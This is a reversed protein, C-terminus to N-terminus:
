QTLRKQQTKITLNKVMLESELKIVREKLKKIDEEQLETELENNAQLIDVLPGEEIYFNHGLKGTAFELAEEM